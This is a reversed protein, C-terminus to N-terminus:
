QMTEVLKTYRDQLKNLEKGLFMNEERLDEMERLTKAVEHQMAQIQQLLTDKEALLKVHTQDQQLLIKQSTRRLQDTTENPSHTNKEYEAITQQLKEIVQQQQEIQAHPHSYVRQSDKEPITSSRQHLQQRLGQLEEQYAEILKNDTKSKELLVKLQTRTKSLDKELTRTRLKSADQKKNACTLQERLLAHEQELTEHQQQRQQRMVAIEQPAHKQGEHGSKTDQVIQELRKIKSKLKLITESRGKWGGGSVQNTTSNLLESVSVNEGVEKMLVRQMKKLETNAKEVKMRLLDIKKMAGPLNLGTAPDVEPPTPLQPNTTKGSSSTSGSKSEPKRSELEQQMSKLEESLSAVRGKEKNLM